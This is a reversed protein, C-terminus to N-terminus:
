ALVLPLTGTQKTLSNISDVSIQAFTKGDVQLVIPAGSGMRANLMDALKNLWGLNKELPVVAEAGNGELLGIQGRKLVGGQELEPIKPVSISGIWTFPEVGLISLNRLKDLVANIANFPISVVKNIGRIIANVVTKFANVIGDKIGDFIKGGVSFVAKVKEWAKSFINGFFEAVTSFVSKVGNWAKTAGDKLGNWMNTFFKVIPQIVTSNFWNAAAQFVSKINNWLKTFYDAIPKIVTDYIMKAARKIIEVWPDIVTHFGSVIGDWLGKFFDAIPKIITDYFWGAITSFLNVIWDWAEQIANSIASVAKKVAAVINDWHKICLVIIAIVAAIAAVILLYPALAVMAAAAQAIHAAVLAWVTTVQAADMAAKVAAVANYLGIATVVVGIVTAITALLAKHETLYSITNGLFTGLKGLVETIVPLYNEAFEKVFPELSSLVNTALETLMALVPAVTAGLKALTEDLKAQAENQAIVEANNKEYTSAADSYLGNLTERILAEREAETNCADLSEQFADESVGAWNLADALAGTLSGTKATENAAETLSEIPLSAGFTGYVGQCINTWESLDKQNTTLQALHAAAETAQGGDGLVRYLDNYTDKATKASGGAAEFATTLKAQEQRYEKTSASLALLATGAAAVGVAAAKAGAKISEGAKKLNEDATKSAEKVQEKFSKVEKKANEIGQKLKDIEASIIVKLQENM